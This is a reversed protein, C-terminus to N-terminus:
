ESSPPSDDKKAKRESKEKQPKEKPKEKEEPNKTQAYDTVYWGNGRFQVAPSTITKELPGGCKACKKLPSDDVKQIVELSAGCNQCRYEYLPM